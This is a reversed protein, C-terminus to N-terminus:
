TTIDDKIRAYTCIHLVCIYVYEYFKLQQWKQNRRQSSPQNSHQQALDKIGPGEFENFRDLDTARLSNQNDGLDGSLRLTENGDAAERM